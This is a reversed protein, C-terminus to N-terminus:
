GPHSIRERNRIQEVMRGDLRRVFGAVLRAAAQLDERHVMVNHSHMYRTPVALALTPVGSHVLQMKGGDTGGGGLSDLQYPIHEAEATQIVLDRLTPNPVLSGDYLLVVVGKGLKARSERAKVGPIDGSLGVDLAIAVDPKLQQALTQAGRLGVEEQVTAGVYVHAAISKDRLEDLALIAAACGARNDWAKGLLFNPNGMATLPSVPAMPCGPRVGLESAEAESSAGIDVFMEEISMVAERDKPKLMHPPRSGIVGLVPGRDTMVQVRQALMVHGWWGGLPRIRLYGDDEVHSVLWGVEDMHAAVLLKPGGGAGRRHVVTSGLHDTVLEGYPALHRALVDRIDQEFGSVGVSETLERFLQWQHDM